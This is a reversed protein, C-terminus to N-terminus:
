LCCVISLDEDKVSRLHKQLAPKVYLQAKMVFHHNVWEHIINQFVWLVVNACSFLTFLIVFLVALTFM